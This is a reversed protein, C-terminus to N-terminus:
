RPFELLVWHAQPPHRASAPLGSVSSPWGGRGSARAKRVLLPDRCAAYGPAKACHTPWWRRTAKGPRTASPLASSLYPAEAPGESAQTGACVGMLTLVQTTHKLQACCHRNVETGAPLYSPSWDEQNALSQGPNPVLFAELTPLIVHLCCFDPCHAPCPTTAPLRHQPPKRFGPFRRKQTEGPHRNGPDPEGTPWEQVGQASGM